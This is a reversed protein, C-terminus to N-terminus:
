ASRLRKDDKKAADRYMKERTEKAEPALIGLVVGWVLLFVIGMVCSVMAAGFGGWINGTAFLYLSLVWSSVHLSWIIWKAM